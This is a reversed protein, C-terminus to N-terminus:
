FYIVDIQKLKQKSKMDDICNRRWKERLDKDQYLVSM